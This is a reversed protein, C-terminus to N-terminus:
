PAVQPNGFEPADIYEIDPIVITDVPKPQSNYTQGLEKRTRSAKFVATDANGISGNGIDLYGANRAEKLVESTPLDTIRSLSAAKDFKTITGTLKEYVSNSDQKSNVYGGRNTSLKINYSDSGVGPAVQGRAEYEELTKKDLRTLSLLQPDNIFARQLNRVNVYLQDNTEDYEVLGKPYQLLETSATNYLLEQGKFVSQVLDAAQNPDTEQLRDIAAITNKKLLSEDLTKIMDEPTNAATDVMADVWNGWGSLTTDNVEGGNLITNAMRDAKDYGFQLANKKDVPNLDSKGYEKNMLNVTSTLETIVGGKIMDFITKSGNKGPATLLQQQLNDPLDKMLRFANLTETHKVEFDAKSADNTDTLLKLIERGGAGQTSLDLARAYQDYGTSFNEIAKNVTDSNLNGAGYTSLLNTRYDNIDRLKVRELAVQATARESTSLDRTSMAQLSKVLVLKDPDNGFTAALQDDPMVATIHSTIDSLNNSAVQFALNPVEISNTEIAKATRQETALFSQARDLDILEGDKFSRPSYGNKILQGEVEKRQAAQAQEAAAANDLIIESPPKGLFKSLGDAITTAYEPNQMHQQKAFNNALATAASSSLSGQQVGQALENTFLAVDNQIRAENAARDAEAQKLRIEEGRAENQAFASIAQIGFGIATGVTSSEAQQQVPRMGRLDVAGLNDEFEPM